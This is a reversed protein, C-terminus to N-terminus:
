LCGAEKLFCSPEHSKNKYIRAYSLQLHRKARTVAVYFLRREEEIGGGGKMLKHNPFRGEMLDVVYVSEYELGKSAHVSLLDVGFVEDDRKAAGKIKRSFLEHTNNMSAIKELMGFRERYQGHLREDGGRRQVMAEIGNKYITSSAIMALADSPKSCKGAKSALHCLTDVVSAARPSQTLLVSPHNSFREGIHGERAYRNNQMNERYADQAAKPIRSFRALDPRLIGNLISRGGLESLAEAVIKSEGVGVGTWSFLELANMLEGRGFLISYIATTFRMDMSDFFGRGETRNVPIDHALLAAEIADATANNRYIIATDNPCYASAAISSAVGHYQAEEKDFGVTHPGDGGKLVMAQLNKPFLRPNHGIVREALDLIPKASRYNKGLTYVKAGAYRERFSGIIGIDAGNFAYISQDYDGVCFLSKGQMADLVTTQLQNTDQYEDVIVEEFPCPHAGYYERTRLLLDNFDIFGHRQKDSELADIAKEYFAAYEEHGEYRDCVWQGFGSESGGSNLFLGYRDYLADHGWADETDGYRRAEHAYIGGFLLKIDKPQKLASQDGLQKLLQLGYAHFTGAFIRDTVGSGFFEALRELMEKGAKNTFTLLLIKEPAVGQAILHSVRGVITSTKGTGASAIILNHGAAATAAAHQDPNLRELPDIAATSAKTSIRTRDHRKSASEAQTIRGGRALQTLNGFM